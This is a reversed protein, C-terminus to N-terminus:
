WDKAPNFGFVQLTELYPSRAIDQPSVFINGNSDLDIGFHNFAQWVIFACQTTNLSDGQTKLALINYPIGILEDQAYKAITDLTEQPTDKLRMMKFTPYYEWKSANQEMSLTGPELSELVKGRKEDVVIGAHGHRWNATYTSKSLFIYGNHFPALEFAKMTNGDADFAKDQKTILNMNTRQVDAGKLYNAQFTLMREVFDSSPRLEDVVPQALGTQEFIITYDADSLSTKNLIPVLDVAEIDPFYFMNRSVLFGFLLYVAFICTLM